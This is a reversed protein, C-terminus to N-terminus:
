KMKKLKNFVSLSKEKVFEKEGFTLGIGYEVSPTVIFCVLCVLLLRTWGSPLTLVFIGPVAFSIVIVPLVKYLVNKVYMRPPLKIM